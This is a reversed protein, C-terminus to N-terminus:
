VLLACLFEPQGNYIESPWFAAHVFSSYLKSLVVTSLYFNVPVNLLFYFCCLFFLSFIGVRRPFFQLRFQFCYIVGGDFRRRFFRLALRFREVRVVVSVLVGHHCDYKNLCCIQCPSRPPFIDDNMVNQRHCGDPVRPRRRPAHRRSVGEVSVM